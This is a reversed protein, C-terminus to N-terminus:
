ATSLNFLAQANDYLAPALLEKPESRYHCLAAFVEVVRKPVNVQGQYGHLPMSPSDTELVLSSLPLQALVQATKEGRPYTITGGVGLKFGQKIYYNAQQLSGSFAHIVGGYNPKIRKFSAAILHHSKRHHVILPLQLENSLAIHAEFLSVQRDIDERNGDIGCEGIACIDGSHECAWSALASMDQPQHESIFYPHLGPAIHCCPNAQRFALLQQSQSLTVGPVMFQEVGLQQAEVLHQPLQAALEAFDLHCHSDIFRLKPTSASLRGVVM